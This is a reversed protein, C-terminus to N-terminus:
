RACAVACQGNICMSQCDPMPVAPCDADARCMEGPPPPPPPPPEVFDPACWEGGPACECIERGSEDVFCGCPGEVVELHCSPHSDCQPGTLGDCTNADWCLDFNGAEDTLAVCSAMMVCIDGPINV